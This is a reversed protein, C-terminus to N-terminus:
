TLLFDTREREAMRDARDRLESLQEALEEAATAAVRLEAATSAPDGRGDFIAAWEIGVLLPILQELFRYPLTLTQPHQEPCDELLAPLTLEFTSM